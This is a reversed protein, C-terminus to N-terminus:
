LYTDDYELTKAHNVAISLFVCMVSSLQNQLYIRYLDVECNTCNIELFLVTQYSNKVHLPVKVGM